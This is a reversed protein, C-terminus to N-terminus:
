ANEVIEKIKGAVLNWSGESHKASEEDRINDQTITLITGKSTQALEYTVQNYNEPKDELGSMSSWYTTEILKEPVIKLIKGKDEYSKGQWEGRYIIPSGAKWDTSVNTGFLWKKIKEPNTIADWVESALANIEISGKAM